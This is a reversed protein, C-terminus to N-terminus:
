SHSIIITIIVGVIHNNFTRIAIQNLGWCIFLSKLFWFSSYIITVTNEFHLSPSEVLLVLLTFPIIPLLLHRVKNKIETWFPRSKSSVSFYGSIIMFLPMHFSYIVRYVSDEFYITTKFYQLAHGWIVLFIAFSKLFDFYIIRNHKFTTVQSDFGQKPYVGKFYHSPLTM